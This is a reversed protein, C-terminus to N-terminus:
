EERPLRALHLAETLETVSAHLFILHQVALIQWREMAQCDRCLPIGFPKETLGHATECFLCRTTPM